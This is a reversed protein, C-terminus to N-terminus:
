SKYHKNDGTTLIVIPSTKLDFIDVNKVRVTTTTIKGFFHRCKIAVLPWDADDDDDVDVM